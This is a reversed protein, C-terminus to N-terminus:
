KFDKKTKIVKLENGYKDMFIIMMEKGTFDGEPIRIIAKTKDEDV